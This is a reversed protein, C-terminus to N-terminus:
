HVSFGFSRVFSGVSSRISLALLFPIGQGLQNVYPAVFYVGTIAFWLDLQGIRTAFWLFLILNVM